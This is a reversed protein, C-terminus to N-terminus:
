PLIGLIMREIGAYDRRVEIGTFGHDSLMSSVVSAEHIGAELLLKGGHVLCSGADRIIRRYLDCGDPGGDLAMLPEQLVEPQLFICEASPIYPPNSVILDFSSASLGDLLDSRCLTVDLSLGSANEAAVQLAEASLDSLTVHADPHEAKLTLGICGSGCCLDLVRPSPLDSLLELAWECLLETEPRPILVRSDVRFTRRCFVTEGVLYQLPVRRIRKEALIQFGSIVSPNLETDSDLRLNLAPIGTLYFLLLAADNEPDPIGAKRFSESTIRILERPTM